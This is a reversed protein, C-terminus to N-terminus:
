DPRVLQVQNDQQERIELPDLSVQLEVLDENDPLELLDLPELSDQLVESLMQM